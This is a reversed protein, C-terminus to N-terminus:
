LTEWFFHYPFADLSNKLAIQSWFYFTFYVEMVYKSLIAIQRYRFSCNKIVKPILLPIFIIYYYNFRMALTHLPAFMQVAIALLLLNRLGIVNDDLKKEDPIIFSFIGFLIFLILMAYANNERARADYMDVLLAQLFSFIQRNFIFIIILALVTPLLWKKTIKARYVPYMFFLFFASKHFLCAIAVVLLFFLLKKRKVFEYAIVGIAIAISQRLGSFFMVFTPLILFISISLPADVVEKRYVIWIPVITIIATIVLLWQFNGTFVFILKNLVAYAVEFTSNILQGWSIHSYTSFIFSYGSTDRGVSKDRLMLLMLYFFFFLGIARKDRANSDQGKIVFLLPLVPAFVLVIYPLVASM